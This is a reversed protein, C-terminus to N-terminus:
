ASKVGNDSYEYFFAQNEDRRLTLEIPYAIVESDGYTQEFSETVQQANPVVIRRISDGDAMDFVWAGSPGDEGKYAVDIKTGHESTAEAIKVADEGWVAKAVEGNASEILTFSISVTLETRPRAVEDGGWAKIAEYAKNLARRLGEAAAYGMSKFKADLDAKADTPLPAKESAKSFFIAGGVKPKGIAVNRANTTM